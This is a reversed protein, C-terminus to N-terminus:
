MQLLVASLSMAEVTFHVADLRLGGVGSMPCLSWRCVVFCVDSSSCRKVQLWLYLVKFFVLVDTMESKKVEREDSTVLLTAGM